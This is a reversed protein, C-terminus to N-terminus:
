GIGVNGGTLLIASSGHLELYDDAPEGIWVYNSDGLHLETGYGWFNTPHYLRMTEGRVYLKDEPTTTGIGVNGPPISYMNNDSVMWDSDM